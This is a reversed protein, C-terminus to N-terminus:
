EIRNSYIAINVSYPEDWSRHGFANCLAERIATMPIEPVDERTFSGTNFNASWRINKSIYQEGIDILKFINGSYDQMDLFTSKEETAFIACRLDVDPNKGFLVNGANKIKGNKDILNLRKLIDEKNTYEYNIRGKKNGKEIFKILTEEDIDDISIDSPKEEWKDNKRETEIIMKRLENQSIKKDEDSVRIYARGNAFYPIDNGEFEVKICEKGELMVKEVIPFIKPEIHDTITRSVDRLTNQKIIQGVPKGNNKIGFYLIGKQHKNLIAVISNLASQLEATSTKFEVKENEEGM